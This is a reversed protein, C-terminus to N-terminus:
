THLREVMPPGVQHRDINGAESVRRVGSGDSDMIYLDPPGDRDSVFLIQEGTPAWIPGYDRAINQTLREQQSGDPNMIYIDWNGGRNSSFAIKATMPAKAWIQRAPSFVLGLSLCVFVFFRIDKM